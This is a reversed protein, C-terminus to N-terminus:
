IKLKLGLSLVIEEKNVRITYDENASSNIFDSVSKKFRSDIFVVYNKINYDIQIGLLYGVGFEHIDDGDFSYEFGRSDEAKLYKNIGIGVLLSPEFTGKIFQFKLISNTELSKTNLEFPIDPISIGSEFYNLEFIYSFKSGINQDLFIGAELKNLSKQDELKNEDFYYNLKSINLGGRIGIETQALLECSTFIVFLIVILKSGLIM